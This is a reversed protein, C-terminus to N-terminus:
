KEKRSNVLDINNYFSEINHERKYRKYLASETLHTKPSLNLREKTEKAGIQNSFYADLTPIAEEYPISTKCNPKQPNYTRNHIAAHCCGCLVILNDFNDTGGNAKGILHHFELYDQRGCVACKNKWIELLERKTRKSIM